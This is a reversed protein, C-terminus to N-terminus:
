HNSIYFHYKSISKLVFFRATLSGSRVNRKFLLDTIHLSHRLVATSIVRKSIKGQFFVVLTLSDLFVYWAAGMCQLPESSVLRAVAKSM